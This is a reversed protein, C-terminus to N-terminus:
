DLVAEMENLKGGIMAKYVAHLEVANKLIVTKGSPHKAVSDIDVSYL